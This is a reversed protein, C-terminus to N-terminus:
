AHDSNHSVGLQGMSSGDVKGLTENSDVDILVRAYQTSVQVFRYSVRTQLNASLDLSDFVQKVTIRALTLPFALFSLNPEFIIEEL